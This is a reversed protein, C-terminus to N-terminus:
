VLSLVDRKKCIELILNRNLPTPNTLGLILLFFNYIMFYYFLSILIDLITNRSNGFVRSFKNLDKGNIIM